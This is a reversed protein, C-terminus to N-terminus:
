RAKRRVAARAEVPAAGAGAPAAPVPATMAPAGRPHQSPPPPPAPKAVAAKVVAAKAVAAKVVAAKVVKPAIQIGGLLGAMTGFSNQGTSSKGRQELPVDAPADAAQRIGLNVRQRASDVSLVRVNVVQGEELADSAKNLRAKGINSIHVLGEVGNPLRVFAGFERLGIVTGEYVEGETLETMREGRTAKAEEEAIAKHSVIADRGRVDLIRFMLTQGVYHTPDADIVRDIQGMPCFARVGGSLEVEFGHENNATVRGQVPIGQAKAEDLLERTAEGSVTLTLRVEGDKVGVVFVDLMDGVQVASPMDMREITADAKAGIDFFVTSDSVRSVMARIRTGKKVGGPRNKPAFDSMLQAMESASLNAIDVQDLDVHIAPEARKPSPSSTRSPAPM